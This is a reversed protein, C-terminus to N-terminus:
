YEATILTTSRGKNSQINHQTYQDVYIEISAESQEPVTRESRM